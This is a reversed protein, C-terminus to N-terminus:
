MKEKPRTELNWANATHGCLDIVHSKIQNKHTSKLPLTPLPFLPPSYKIQQRALVIRFLM